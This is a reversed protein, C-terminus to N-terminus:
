PFQYLHAKPNLGEKAYPEYHKITKIPFYGLKKLMEIVQNNKTSTHAQFSIGKQKAIEIIKKTIEGGIEKGFFDPDLTISYENGARKLELSYKNSKKNILITGSGVIKSEIEAIVTINEKSFPIWQNKIEEITIKSKRPVYPYKNKSMAKNFFEMTQLADRPIGEKNLNSWDFLRIKLM